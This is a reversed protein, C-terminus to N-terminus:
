CGYFLIQQLLMIFCFLFNGLTSILILNPSKKKLPQQSRKKYLM